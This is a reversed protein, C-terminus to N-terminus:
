NTSNTTLQIQRKIVLPLRQIIPYFASNSYHPSCQYSLSFRLDQTIAMKFDRALRSKGIGAEGSLLVVQGEREKALKWRETLLGLEHERGVLNTLTKGHSAEFRSETHREGNVTWALIDKNFGKINQPGLAKLNFRSGLLSRTNSGIIIGNPKALNQLRAALNPTDGVVTDFDSLTDGVLDGVVVLGSDIGIRVQLEGTDLIRIAKIKTVIDISARVAREAQDEYDKPWGFYSLVGDGVFRAVYGQYHRVAATVTNQYQRLIERMEEPDLKQSLTTSGILDCFVVTLQRREADEEDNRLALNSNDNYDDLQLKKIEAILIRRHGLSIGLEHLDNEQLHPLARFNIDNAKFIDVYQGLGLQALWQNIQDQGAM